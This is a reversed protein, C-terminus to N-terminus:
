ECCEANWNSFYPSIFSFSFIIIKKLYVNNWFTILLHLFQLPQTCCTENDRSLDDKSFLVYSLHLYSLMQCMSYSHWSDFPGSKYCFNHNSRKINIAANTTWQAISLLETLCNQEITIIAKTAHKSLTCAKQWLFFINQGAVKLKPM